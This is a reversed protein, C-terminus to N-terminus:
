TRGKAAFRRWKFLSVIGLVTHRKQTPGERKAAARVINTPEDESRDVRDHHVFHSLDEWAPQARAGNAPNARYADGARANRRKDDAIKDIKPPHQPKQRQLHVLTSRVM